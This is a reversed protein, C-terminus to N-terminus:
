LKFEQRFREFRAQQQALNAAPPTATEAKLTKHMREHRGNPEPKGPEIREPTIGLKVWWVGLRSLGGAGLSAFPAGNDSRIARPLWIRSVGAGAACSLRCLRSVGASPRVA